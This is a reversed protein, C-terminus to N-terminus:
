NRNIKYNSLILAREEYDNHWPSYFFYGGYYLIDTKM